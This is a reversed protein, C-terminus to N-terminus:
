KTYPKFTVIGTELIVFGSDQGNVLEAFRRYDTGHKCPKCVHNECENLHATILLVFIACMAAM